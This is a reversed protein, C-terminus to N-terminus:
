TTAATDDTTDNPRLLCTLRATAVSRGADDVIEIHYSAVQRGARLPTATATVFGDRVGRHHSCSIEVGVAHHTPWGHVNAAISGLSEALVCSAGGHLLGFPQTNGAVPMRGVVRQRSVELVEIGMREDLASTPLHAMMPENTHEQSM